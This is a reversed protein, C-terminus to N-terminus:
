YGYNRLATLYLCPLPNYGLRAFFKPRSVRGTASLDQLASEAVPWLLSFPHMACKQSASDAAKLPEFLGWSNLRWTLM